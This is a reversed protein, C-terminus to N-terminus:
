IAWLANYIFFLGGIALAVWFLLMVWLLPGSLM